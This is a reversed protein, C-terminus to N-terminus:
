QWKDIKVDQVVVFINKVKDQIGGLLGSLVM